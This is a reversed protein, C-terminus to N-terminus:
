EFALPYEVGTSYKHELLLRGGDKSLGSYLSRVSIGAICVTCSGLSCPLPFSSHYKKNELKPDEETGM